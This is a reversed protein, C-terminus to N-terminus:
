KSLIDLRSENSLFFEAAEKAWRPDSFNVILWVVQGPIGEEELQSIAAM